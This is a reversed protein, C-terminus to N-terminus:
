DLNMPETAHDRKHKELLYRIEFQFADTQLAEQVKPPCPSIQAAAASRRWVRSICRYCCWCTLEQDRLPWWEKGKHQDGPSWKRDCAISDELAALLLLLFSLKCRSRGHCAGAGVSSEGGLVQRLALGRHTTRAGGDSHRNQNTAALAM